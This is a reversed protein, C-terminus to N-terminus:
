SKITFYAFFNLDKITPIDLLREIPANSEDSYLFSSKCVLVNINCKKRNTVLLYDLLSYYLEPHYCCLMRIAKNKYFFLKLLFFKNDKKKVVKVFPVLSYISYLLLFAKAQLEFATNKLIGFPDIEKNFEPLSISIQLSKLSPVSHVNKLNHKYIYDCKFLYNNYSLSM